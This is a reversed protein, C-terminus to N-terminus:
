LYCWNPIIEIKTITGTWSINNSGVELTPFDGNMKNNLNEANDNYAEQMISDLIINNSIATLIINKSNITLTIDGSGYLKMIPYAIVTGINILSTSQTITIKNLGEFSYAMPKCMFTATFSGLIELERLIEKDLKIYNVLYFYNTDDSLVLKNDQINQLWAKINRVQECFNDENINIFKINIEIDNYAGYKEVLTGNRGEINIVNIEEEAIPPNPRTEIYLGLDNFSNINNFYVSYM